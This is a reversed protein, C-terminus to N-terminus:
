RPTPEWDPASDWWETRTLPRNGTGDARMVYLDAGGDGDSGHVIWGGDPSYSASLVLTPPKFHTLQKLGSGDPRVTWFDSQRSDENEFSRFLIKGDPSFVPHDGGGLEWSAVQHHGSGDIGVAFIAKGFSPKSRASNQRTYIVSRGDPSVQPAAADGTWGSRKYITRQKGSRLDIEEISSQQIQPEIDITVRGQALTVLLRGDPTWAPASADCGGKLRCHFRVQHPKGGDPEVTWVSCPRGESCHQYAILRGDPSWDPYDDAGADPHTLQQEATGDTRVTFIAGHTKSADLWRRFAIRGSPLEANAKAPAAAPPAAAAPGAGAPASRSESGGCGAAVGLTALMAAVRTLLRADIM